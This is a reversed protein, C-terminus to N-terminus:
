NHKAIKPFFLHDFKYNPIQFGFKPHNILQTISNQWNNNQETWEFKEEKKESLIHIFARAHGIPMIVIEM